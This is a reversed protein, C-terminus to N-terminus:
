RVGGWRPWFLFVPEGDLVKRGWGYAYEGETSTTRLIHGHQQPSPHPYQGWGLKGM